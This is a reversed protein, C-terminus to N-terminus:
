IIELWHILLANWTCDSVIPLVKRFWLFFHVEELELAVFCLQNCYPLLSPLNSWLWYVHVLQGHSATSISWKHTIWYNGNAWHTCRAVCGHSRLYACPELTCMFCDANGGVNISSEANVIELFVLRLRLQLTCPELSWSFFSSDKSVLYRPRELCTRETFKLGNIKQVQQLATATHTNASCHEKQESCPTTSHTHMHPDGPVTGSHSRIGVWCSWDQQVMTHHWLQRHVTNM